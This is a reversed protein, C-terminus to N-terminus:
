RGNKIYIVNDKTLEPKVFNHEKALISLSVLSSSYVIFCTCTYLLHM